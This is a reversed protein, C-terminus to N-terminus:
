ITRPFDIFLSKMFYNFLESQLNLSWKYIFYDQTLNKQVVFQCNLHFYVIPEIKFYIFYYAVGNQFTFFLEFHYM